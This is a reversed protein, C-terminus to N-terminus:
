IRILQLKYILISTSKKESPFCRAKEQSKELNAPGYLGKKQTISYKKLSRQKRCGYLLVVDKGYRWSMMIDFCLTLNQAMEELYRWM